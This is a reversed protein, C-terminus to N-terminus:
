ISTGTCHTQTSSTAFKVEVPDGVRLSLCAAANGQNLAIELYGFSNWLSIFNGKLATGYYSNIDNITINGISVKPIHPLDKQRINTIINGFHDISIINGHVGELDKVPSFSFQLPLPVLNEKPFPSGLLSPQLGLSLHAAAPAFIDRGHFTSSVPTLQYIENKLEVVELPPDEELIWQLVGNNPAIFFYSGTKICVGEREGGVGPDVVIVFITGKPFNRYSVLLSYAGAAIDYPSIGHSLDVCLVDPNIGLVVGKMIGVFPDKYGFDTLFAIIM